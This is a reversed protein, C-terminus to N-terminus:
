GVLRPKEENKRSEVGCVGKEGLVVHGRLLLFHWLHPHGKVIRVAEKGSKLADLVSVLHLSTARILVLSDVLSYMSHLVTAASDPM